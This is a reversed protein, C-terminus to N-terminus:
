HEHSTKEQHKNIIASREKMGLTNWCDECIDNESPVGKPRWAMNMWDFGKQKCYCCSFQVYDNGTM